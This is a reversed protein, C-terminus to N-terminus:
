GCGVSVGAGTCCVWAAHQDIFLNEPRYLRDAPANQWSETKAPAATVAPVSLSSAPTEEAASAPESADAAADGAATRSANTPVPPKTIRGRLVFVLIVFLAAVAIGVIVILAANMRKLATVNSPDAGPDDGPFSRNGSGSDYFDGSASRYSPDYSDWPERDYPGDDAGSFDDPRYAATKTEDQRNSNNRENNM